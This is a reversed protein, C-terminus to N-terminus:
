STDIFFVNFLCNSTRSITAYATFNVKSNHWDILIPLYKISIHTITIKTSMDNKNSTYNRFIAHGSECAKELKESPVLMCKSLILFYQTTGKIHKSARFRQSSRTRRGINVCTRGNERCVPYHQPRLNAVRTLKSNMRTIKSYMRSIKWNGLTIKHNVRISDANTDLLTITTWLFPLPKGSPFDHNGIWLFM